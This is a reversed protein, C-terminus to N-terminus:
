FDIEMGVNIVNLQRIKRTAHPADQFWSTASTSKLRKFRIIVWNNSILRLRSTTSLMFMTVRLACSGNPSIKDQHKFIILDKLRYCLIGDSRWVRKTRVRLNQISASTVGLYWNSVNKALSTMRFMSLIRVSATRGSETWAWGRSRAFKANEKIILIPLITRVNWASIRAASMAFLTSGKVSQANSKVM